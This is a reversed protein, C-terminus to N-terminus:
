KIKPEVYLELTCEHHGKVPCHVEVAGDVYVIALVKKTYHNDDARNQWNCDM